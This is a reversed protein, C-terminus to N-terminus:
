LELADANVHSAEIIAILETSADPDYAGQILNLRRKQEDLTMKPFIIHEYPPAETKTKPEDIIVRIPTEPAIHHYTADKLFDRVTTRLEM